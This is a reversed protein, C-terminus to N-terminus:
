VLYARRGAPMTQSQYIM